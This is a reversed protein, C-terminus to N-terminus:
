GNLTGSSPCSVAVGGPVLLAAFTTAANLQDLATDIIQRPGFVFQGDRQLLQGRTVVATNRGRGARRATQPRTGAPAGAVSLSLALLGACHLPKSMVNDGRVSSPVGRVM